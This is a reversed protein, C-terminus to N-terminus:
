GHEGCVPELTHSDRQARGKKDSCPRGASLISHLSSRRIWTLRRVLDSKPTGAEYAKGVIQEDTFRSKRM